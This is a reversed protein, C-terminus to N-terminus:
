VHARGIEVAMLAGARSQSGSYAVGGTVPHIVGVKVAKAQARLVAPSGLVTLAAAGAGLITRRTVPPKSTPTSVSM